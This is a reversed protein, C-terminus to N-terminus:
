VYKNTLILLWLHEKNPTIGPLTVYIFPKSGTGQFTKNTSHSLEKETEFTTGIEDLMLFRVYYTELLGFAVLAVRWCFHDLGEIALVRVFIPM